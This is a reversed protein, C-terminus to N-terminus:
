TSAFECKDSISLVFYFMYIDCDCPRAFLVLLAFDTVTLPSICDGSINFETRDADAMDASGILDLVKITRYKNIRYGVRSFM